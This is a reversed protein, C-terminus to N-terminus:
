GIVKLFIISSLVMNKMRFVMCHKKKSLSHLTTKQNGLLLLNESTGLPFDEHTTMTLFTRNEVSFTM